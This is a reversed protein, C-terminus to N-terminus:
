YPEKKEVESAKLINNAQLDFALKADAAYNSDLNMNAVGTQKFNDENEALSVPKAPDSRLDVYPEHIFEKEEM